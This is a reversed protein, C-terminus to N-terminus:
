GAPKYADFLGAFANIDDDPKAPRPKRRLRRYAGNKAIKSYHYDPHAARWEARLRALLRSDAFNQHGYLSRDPLEVPDIDHQAMLRRAAAEAAAVEHPNTSAALALAKQFKVDNRLTM